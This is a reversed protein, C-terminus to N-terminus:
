NHRTKVSNNTDLLEWGYHYHILGTNDYKEIFRLCTEGHVSHIFFPIVGEGKTQSQNMKLTPTKAIYAQFSTVIIENRTIFYDLNSINM